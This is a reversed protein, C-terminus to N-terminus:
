RNLRLSAQLYVATLTTHHRLLSGAKREKAEMSKYIRLSATRETKAKVWPVPASM